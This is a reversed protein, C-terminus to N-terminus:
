VIISSLSNSLRDLHSDIELINIKEDRIAQALNAKVGMVVPARFFSKLTKQVKDSEGTSSLIDKDTLGSTTGVLKIVLKRPNSVALNLEGSAGIELPIGTQPELFRIKEPTGWKLGLHVTKNVFYVECHFPSVGDTPIEVINRLMPINETTLTYTEPGFSDLAQGNVFLIAEQSEHVILQSGLNFDEIPHKWVLTNNDGEYKIVSVLSDDVANEKAYVKAVNVHEGCLPCEFDPDDKSAEITCSCTPCHVKVMKYTVTKGGVHGCHPCPQKEADKAQNFMYVKGCSDCKRSIITSNKINIEHSCTGCKIAKKALIFNSANNLTGCKPCEINFSNFPNLSIGM